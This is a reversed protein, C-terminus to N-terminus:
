PSGLLRIPFICLTCLGTACTVGESISNCQLWKFEPNIKYDNKDGGFDNRKKKKRKKKKKKDNM